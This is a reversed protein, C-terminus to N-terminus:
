VVSDITSCIRRIDAEDTTDGCSAGPRTDDDLFHSHPSHCVNIANLYVALNIEMGVLSAM